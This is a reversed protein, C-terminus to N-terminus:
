TWELSRLLFPEDLRNAKRMQQEAQNLAALKEAAPMGKMGMSIGILANTINDEIIKDIFGGYNVAIVALYLSAALMLVSIVLRRILYKLLRTLSSPALIVAGLSETFDAREHEIQAM